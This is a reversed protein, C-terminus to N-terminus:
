IVINKIHFINCRIHNMSISIITHTCIVDFFQIFPSTNTLFLLYYVNCILWPPIGGSLVMFLFVCFRASFAVLLLVSERRQATADPEGRQSPYRLCPPGNVSPGTTQCCHLSVAVTLIVSLRSPLTSVIGDHGVQQASAMSCPMSIRETSGILAFM